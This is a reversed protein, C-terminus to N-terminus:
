IGPHSLLAAECTEIDTRAPKLQEHRVLFHTSVPSVSSTPSTVARQWEETKTCDPVKQNSSPVYSYLM